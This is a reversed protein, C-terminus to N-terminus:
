GRAIIDKGRGDEGGIAALRRELEAIEEPDTIVSDDDPRHWQVTLLVENPPRTTDMVFNDCVCRRCATDNPVNRHEAWTDGCDICQSADTPTWRDLKVTRRVGRLTSLDRM